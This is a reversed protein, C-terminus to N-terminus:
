ISNCFLCEFTFYNWKKNKSKSFMIQVFFKSNNPTQYRHLRDPNRKGKVFRDKKPVIKFLNYLSFNNTLVKNFFCSAIKQKRKEHIGMPLEIILLYQYWGAGFLPGDLM